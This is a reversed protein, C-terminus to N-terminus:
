EKRRKGVKLARATETEWNRLLRLIKRYNAIANGLIEAQEPSVMQHVLKGKKMRGWEYYPGHRARPDKACRCGPKGCLKMRKLLTGSCVNDIARIKEKIRAIRESAANRKQKDKKQTM